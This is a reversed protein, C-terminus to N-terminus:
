IEYEPSKSRGYGIRTWLREHLFYLGVKLIFDLGGAGMSLGPKGSLVLFILGTCISGLVRYSLAKALSRTHSDM